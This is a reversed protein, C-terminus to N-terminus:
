ADVVRRAARAPGSDIETALEYTITGAVQAHEEL